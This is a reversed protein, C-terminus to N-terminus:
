HCPQQPLGRCVEAGGQVGQVGLISRVLLVLVVFIILVVLLLLQELLPPPSPPRPVFPLDAPVAPLPNSSFASPPHERGALQSSLAPCVRGWPPPSLNFFLYWDFALISGFM